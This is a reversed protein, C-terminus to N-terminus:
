VCISPTSDHFFCHLYVTPFKRDYFQQSFPLAPIGIQSRVSLPLIYQFLNVVLRAIIILESILHLRFYPIIAPQFRYSDSHRFHQFNVNRLFPNQFLIYIPFGYKIQHERIFHFLFIQFLDPFHTSYQIRSM